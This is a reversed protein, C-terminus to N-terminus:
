SLLVIKVLKLGPVRRISSVPFAALLEALGAENEPTALTQNPNARGDPQVAAAEDPRFFDRLGDSRWPTDAPKVHSFKTTTKDLM